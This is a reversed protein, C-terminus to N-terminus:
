QEPRSDQKKFFLATSLPEGLQLLKKRPLWTEASHTFSQKEGTNLLLFMGRIFRTTTNIMTPSASHIILLKMGMADPM